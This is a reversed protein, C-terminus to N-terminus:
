AIPKIYCRRRKHQETEFGKWQARVMENTELEPGTEAYKVGNAMAVEIGKQLILANVGRGFYEPKVAILLMDLVDSSKLARLVRIFGFPFLRGNSKKIAQSLSPVMIGFGIVQDEKDVVIYLYDLTVLSYFQSVALAIQRDNLPFFGYLQSFSENYMHFMETTYKLVDKKKTFTLLKFGQRKQAIESIRAIREDITEPVFVKYELWDADKVFGLSELHQAYYPHNYLTIFMSLQDFGEVLLGQKDLDSFGIPGILQNMGKSVGWLTVADILSRSVEIDDIVDYRTFRAYRTHQGENLKHNIIGAIRGVVRKEKYALFAISECHEYAPNKKPNFNTKEDGLLSPVYYENDKYLDHPFDFFVSWEKKTSVEKITIM